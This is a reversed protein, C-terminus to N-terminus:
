VVELARAPPPGAPPEARVRPPLAAPAIASDQPPASPLVRCRSVEPDGLETRAGARFINTRRSIPPALFAVDAPAGPGCSVVGRPTDEGRSRGRPLAPSAEEGWESADGAVLRLSPRSSGRARMMLAAMMSTPAIGDDSQGRDTAETAMAPQDKSTTRGSALREVLKGAVCGIEVWDGLSADSALTAAPEPTKATM